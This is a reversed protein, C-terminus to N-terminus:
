PQPGRRLQPARKARLAQHQLDFLCKEWPLELREDPPLFEWVKRMEEARGRWLAPSFLDRWTGYDLAGDMVSFRGKRHVLAAATVSEGRNLAAQLLPAAAGIRAALALPSYGDPGTVRSLDELSADKPLSDLVARAEARRREGEELLLPYVTEPHKARVAELIGGGWAMPESGAELLLAVNGTWGGSAANWLPLDDYCRPDAGREILFSLMGNPPRESMLVLLENLAYERDGSQELLIDAMERNGNVAAERLAKQVYKDDIKCATALKQVVATHDNGAATLLAAAARASPDAGQELLWEVCDLHGYCAANMLAVDDEARVDLGTERMVKLIGLHGKEAVARLATSHDFAGSIHSHALKAKEPYNILCAFNFANVLENRPRGKMDQDALGLQRWKDNREEETM